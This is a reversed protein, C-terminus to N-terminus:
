TNTKYTKSVHTHNVSHVYNLGHTTISLRFTINNIFAVEDKISTLHQFLNDVTVPASDCNRYDGYKGAGADGSAEFIFV